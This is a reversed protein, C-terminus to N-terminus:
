DEALMLSIRIRRQPESRLDRPDMRRPSQRRGLRARLQRNRRFGVDYLHAGRPFRQRQYRSCVAPSKLWPRTPVGSGFPAMRRAALNAASTVNSKKPSM